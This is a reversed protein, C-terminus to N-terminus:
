KVGGAKLRALALTVVTEILTKGSNKCNGFRKAAPLRDTEYSQEFHLWHVVILFM